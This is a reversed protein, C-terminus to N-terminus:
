LHPPKTQPHNNYEADSFVPLELKKNFKSFAYEKGEDALRRWHFLILGDRRAPNTFPMWKWPRVKRMGLKAKMQKYSKDKGMSTDTPILPPADKSDNYLLNYLERAMGEPRKMPGDSKRAYLKKPKDVGLIMEKTVEQPCSDRSLGMIERVDASSAM